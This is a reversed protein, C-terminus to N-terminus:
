VKLIEDVAVNLYIGDGKIEDIQSPFVVANDSFFSSEIYLFGDEDFDAYLKDPFNSDGIVSKLVDRVTEDNAKHNVQISKGLHFSKITGVQEGEKDYISMGEIITTLKHQAVM